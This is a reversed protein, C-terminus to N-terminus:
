PAIREFEIRTIVKNPYCGPHSKWFFEVFQEPTMEPFGEAIVEAAGYEPEDTIRRLKELRADKIRIRGMVVQAQGAKLGQGKEIAILEDGARLTEWGMRRTVTKSGDLFQRQTLFFSIRRPM